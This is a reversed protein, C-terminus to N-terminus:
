MPMAAFASIVFTKGPTQNPLKAETMSCMLPSVHPLRNIGRQGDPFDEPMSAITSIVYPKPANKDTHPQTNAALTIPVAM